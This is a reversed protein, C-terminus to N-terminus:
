ILKKEKADVICTVSVGQDLTLLPMAKGEGGVASAPGELQMVVHESSLAQQLYQLFGEWTGGLGIDDRLDNLQRVSFDATWSHSHFDTAKIQLCAGDHAVQVTFLFDFLVAIAYHPSSPSLRGKARGFVTAFSALSDTM